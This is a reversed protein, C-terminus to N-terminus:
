ASCYAERGTIVFALIQAGLRLSDDLFADWVVGV